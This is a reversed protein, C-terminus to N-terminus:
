AAEGFLCMRVDARRSAIVDFARLAEEYLTRHRNRRRRAQLESERQDLREREAVAAARNPGLRKSATRSRLKTDLQLRRNRVILLEVGARAHDVLVEAHPRSLLKIKTLVGAVAHARNKRDSESVPASYQHGRKGQVIPAVLRLPAVSALWYYRGSGGPQSSMEVRREPPANVILSLMARSALIRFPIGADNTRTDDIRGGYSALAFRPESARIYEQLVAEIAKRRASKYCEATAQPQEAM